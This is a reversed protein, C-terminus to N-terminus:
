DVPVAAFPDRCHIEWWRQLLSSFRSRFAQPSFSEAHRRLREAPLSHWLQAAEFSELACKLQALEQDPFLWGTALEPNQQLCIVTDRLGGRGLAIVPAGAAMAEVPAIGFDEVGAYVYARCRAMLQEVEHAPCHGLFRTNAQAMAKLRPRDPGDGVVILPLNLAACAQVVLDVRKYPVLRCVCLYFDERPQQWDFRDVAVPPHLVTASRGWYRSIRQATFCSNAILYNPRKATLVDWLRLQHLQWRVWPGLVGQALRSGNLYAHMQDWAYRVPTHVYSVHLQEPSTLVGKAVLHSSSVVLPFGELNLQEIAIPLLPLYQQVHTKGFPL